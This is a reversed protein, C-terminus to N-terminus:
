YQEYKSKERYLTICALGSKKLEEVNKNIVPMFKFAGFPVVIFSTIPKDLKMIEFGNKDVLGNKDILLNYIAIQCFQSFYVQKASKFDIIAYSGDQMEAGADSIGGVFLDENFCHAESWLYKKVNKISWEIYPQIKEDYEAMRDDMTNKVFRELEAHLDTGAQATDDLRVAHATYAKQCLKIYDEPTIEKNAELWKLVVRQVEKKEEKTAKGNKIKTLVKCDEIGSFEKVALGSAWWTLTKGLVDVVSSGGTMNVGNFQHFHCPKGKEDQEIFRYNYQIKEEAM